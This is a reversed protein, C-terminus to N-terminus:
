TQCLLPKCLPFLGACRRSIQLTCFSLKHVYGYSMRTTLHLGAIVAVSACTGEAGQNSSRACQILMERVYVRLEQSELGSLGFFAADM